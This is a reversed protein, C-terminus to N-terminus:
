KIKRQTKERLGINILAMNVLAIGVSENSKLLFVGLVLVALNIRITFSKLRWM